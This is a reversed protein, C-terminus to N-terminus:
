PAAVEERWAALAAKLQRVREPQRASLDTKEGLDSALDYLAAAPAAAKTKGKMRAAGNGPQNVVLKWSGQRVAFRGNYGWFLTRDPLARGELLLPALSVGDLKRIRPGAVEALDLLTPM